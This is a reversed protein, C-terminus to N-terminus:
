DLMPPHRFERFFRKAKESKHLYMVIAMGTVLARSMRSLLFTTKSDPVVGSFGIYALNLVITGYHFYALCILTIRAWQHGLWAFVAVVMAGLGFLISAALPLYELSEEVPLKFCLYCALSAPFAGVFLFMWVTVIWVGKPRTVPSSNRVPARDSKELIGTKTPPGGILEQQDIECVIAEDPYDKGCYTCKKM